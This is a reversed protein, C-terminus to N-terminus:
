GVRKGRALRAAVLRQVLMLLVTAVAAFAAIVVYTGQYSGFLTHFQSFLSPGVVVGTFTFFMAAGTITGVAQAPSLRAVESLYVGNWSNATLGLLLFLGVLVALPLADGAVAVLLSAAVMALALGVLVSLGRGTADAVWGWLVRGFAGCLQVGALVLGATALSVGKEEVLMAVLFAVVSLQVASFCFTAFALWRLPPNGFVLRLSAWPMVMPVWQREEPRDLERRGRQSYLMVMLCAAAVSWLAASWGFRVAILPGIIGVAMGGVPVGAQKISFILSRRHPPAHRILLESSSPIIMGYSAGIIISGVLMSFLNPVSALLCGIVDMLMALQGIRCGGHRAVLAGAILSAGMAALYIVTIQYGIFVSSVGLTAAVAPALAPIILVSM